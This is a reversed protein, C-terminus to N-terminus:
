QRVTFQITLAMGDPRIPDREPTGSFGAYDGGVTCLGKFGGTRFTEFVGSPLDVFAGERPPLPPSAATAGGVAPAGGPREGHPSPQLVAVRGGSDSSDARYVSVLMRTITVAGLNVIQDGYCALGTMPGSGYGDGQWLTSRGGYRDTNWSDWRTQASKWSGSWQPMLSVQRAVLQGPNGTGGGPDSGDSGSYNGQPGLVHVPKGWKAPDRMVHVKTGVTYTGANYPLPLDSGLVRTTLLGAAANVARVEGAVILDGATVPGLCFTMRGGDLPSRLVRVRAQPTYIAPTSPIWVPDSGGVSVQVLGAAADVGVLTGTVLAGVDSGPTVGDPLPASLAIADLVSFGM